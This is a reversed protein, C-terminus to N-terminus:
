KTGHKKLPADERKSFLMELAALIQKRLSAAEILEDVYGRKAQASASQKEAFLKATEGVNGTDGAIIKAAMGADMIGINADTLAYVVDAGLTMTMYASGFANKLIIDIKPVTANAYAYVLDAGARALLKEEAATATFGTANILTVVPIDFADCFKVLAAAKQLGAATLKEEQNGVLGVTVGDLRMFGTVVDPAFDRKTEIFLGTDAVSEAIVRIDTEGELEATMRNLDDEADEVATDENNSPLMAVLAAVYSALEEESGYGDVIGSEKSQFEASATNCKEKYNSDLTNPANVYLSAGKEEMFVFDAMGASVAMGGGCKGYVVMIEPIVGSAKAQALYLLQFGNLADTVEELRVGACDLLGIIPAGMKVAMEYLRVIKKAHMEGLSGGLVSADQSYVYVLKGGVTAFGTIVGDGPAELSLASFDTARASVRSGIEVFSGEDVLAEIRSKAKTLENTSM